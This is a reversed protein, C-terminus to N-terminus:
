FHMDEPLVAPPLDETVTRRLRSVLSLLTQSTPHLGPVNSRRYASSSNRRDSYSRNLLTFVNAHRTAARPNFLKVNLRGNGAEREGENLARMLKSAVRRRSNLQRPPLM